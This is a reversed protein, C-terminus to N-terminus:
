PSPPVPAPRPNCSPKSPSGCCRSRCRLPAKMTQPSWAIRRRTRQPLRVPRFSTVRRDIAALEDRNRRRMTAFRAALSAVGVAHDHDTMRPDLSAVAMVLGHRAAAALGVLIVTEQDAGAWAETHLDALYILREKLATAHPDDDSRPREPALVALITTSESATQRDALVLEFKGAADTVSSCPWTLDELQGQVSSEGLAVIVGALPHGYDGVAVTGRLRVM